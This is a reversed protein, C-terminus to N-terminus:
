ASEKDQVGMLKKLTWIPTRWYKRRALVEDRRSVLDEFLDAYTNCMKEATHPYNSMKAAWIDYEALMQELKTDFNDETFGIGFGSCYEPLAGSERYLLPLGCLAGEIHHMGAPEFQSGTLYIDHKRIESALPEGSLPELHRVNRFEFEKPVNGIYTMRLRQQWDENDLLRDIKEYIDFGKLWSGGWHHTVISLPAGDTKQHSGNAFFISPEAGNLAVSHSRPTMGQALHLDRLWSGIFITHDAVKTADRLLANVTGGGKREDNENIRHAVIARRNRFMVYRIIDTVGYASSRLQTRPDTLLILDLDDPSLDFVVSHGRTELHRALAAGFQNGGGWPGKQIAM